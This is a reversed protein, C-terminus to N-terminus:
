SAITSFTNQSENPLAPRTLKPGLLATIEPILAEALLLKTHFSFTTQGCCYTPVWYGLLLHQIGFQREQERGM